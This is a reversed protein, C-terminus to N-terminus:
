QPGFCALTGDEGALYIRGRAAAIGNFVPPAPLTEEATKEGSAADFVCLVGGKRGEFAGLPDKPDVVDPPGAAFLQSGALAMARIRVPVREAWDDKRGGISRAFLLYGKAGPTFYVNPTLGQLSDFMRLYYASRADYVILNAHNAEGGFSWPMRKFYTGDLLGNRTEMAPRGTSPKLQRDFARNRLFITDGQAVLIDSLAGMPLRFNREINDSTYYPGDLKTQWRIEGTSADLGYLAIGGDLHSSRGAAFYATGNEVLVSGHVPWASELQGFAGILREEPAARFRWALQGDAARLSYVWGDASGLILSGRWYTPPSDIRGGAAFEWLKRGDRADLCVLHHEDVLSAFVQRGVAIPASVSTGLKVRWALAAGAPGEAASAGSRASDHRFAPWDGAGAEPGATQGFAPGRELKPGVLNGPTEPRAPALVNMGSLKEEIYCQCPHPPAYQLGNAPMMGVHCTGRVWNDVTHRGQELDVYESGRRSCLIYRLTAKDRYCRHHHEAQFIPGTPVQKMLRGTRLDYGNASRPWLERQKKAGTEFFGEDLEASWTWVLGDIVFVDKWAYWLHGLYKKPQEWLVKGSDAAIAALRSPTAHIVVGNQVIMTGIWLDGQSAIGGATRDAADQPFDCEWRERGTELDLCAVRAGNILAVAGSGAALNLAPDLRGPKSTGGKENWRIYDVISGRYAKESIWKQRASITDIAMVRAGEGGLVSLVLTGDLHLIEATGETSPYTQLIEGTRADLQSVPARYGLTAYLKDGAAVLCKQINLPMDGPRTNFWTDRWERWGWRRIPVKWLFVGNFADRAVLFWSDPLTFGELSNPSQDEILFLRGQSTVLTSVSSDTEHSKQFMPGSIWQYRRPPGVVRDQAVPNGGPGHLYHTWEDIDAPWPKELRLWTGPLGAIEVAAVQNVGLEKFRNELLGTWAAAGAGSADGLWATGLPALVRLIEEPSLGAKALSPYSDVVMINVLNDTYPLAAGEAVNASVSGYMGRSRIAQRLRDCQPKDAVLCQVVFPGHKAVAIALEERAPGVIACIGGPAGSSRVIASAAELSGTDSGDAGPAATSGLCMGALLLALRGAPIFGRLANSIM